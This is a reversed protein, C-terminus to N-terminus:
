FRKKLNSWKDSVYDSIKSPLSRASNAAKNAYTGVDSAAQGIKGALAKAPGIAPAIVSELLKSQLDAVPVNKSALTGEITTKRTSARINDIEAKLRKSQMASSVAPTGIDGMDFGAGSPTSAGSGGAAMIPNLGAAKMDAVARQYATSSMYEQFAMQKKASSKGFMGGLIGGGMSLGGIIADDVGFAM